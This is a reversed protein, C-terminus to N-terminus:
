MVEDLLRQRELKGLVVEEEGLFRTFMEEVNRRLEVQQAATINPDLEGIIKMMIRARMEAQVDRPQGPASRARAPTEPAGFGGGGNGKSPDTTQHTTREIRRLLSMPVGRM